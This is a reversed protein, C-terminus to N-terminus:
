RNKFLDQTMIIDLIVDYEIDQIRYSSDNYPKTWQTKRSFLNVYVPNPCIVTKSKSFLQPLLLNNEFENKEKQTPRLCLNRKNTYITKWMRKLKRMIKIHSMELAKDFLDDM